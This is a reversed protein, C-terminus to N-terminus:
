AKPIDNHIDYNHRPSIMACKMHIGPRKWHINWQALFLWFIFLFPFFIPITYLIDPVAIVTWQIYRFCLFIIPSSWVASSVLILIIFCILTWAILTTVHLFIFTTARCHLKWFRNSDHELTSGNHLYLTFSKEWRRTKKQNKANKEMFVVGFLM